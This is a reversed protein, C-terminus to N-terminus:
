SRKWYWYYQSVSTVALNYRFVYPQGSFRTLNSTATKHLFILFCTPEVL